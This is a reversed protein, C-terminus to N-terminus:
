KIRIKVKKTAKDFFANGNYAITVWYKKKKNLKKLKFVAKGKKNTKSVYKKNKVKLTVKMNSIPKNKNDKLNITYKKTKKKAKFAKNKAIIKVPMKKVLISQTITANNYNEDENFSVIVNYTGLHLNKTSINIEGNSDTTFSANLVGTIEINVTTNKIASNKFGKIIIKLYDNDNYIYTLKNLTIIPTTKIITCNYATGGFMVSSNEAYNGIFLTNNVISKTTNDLYYIGGGYRASNEIFVSNNVIGKSSDRYYIGGGKVASNGILTINEFINNRARSNFIAGGNNSTNNTFTSNFIKSGGWTYYISGGYKEAANNSFVSNVITTNTHDDHYIAGGREAYNDKFTSNAILMPSYDVIYIAGGIFRASNNIFSSNIIVGTCNSGSSIAGGDGYVPSITAGNSEFICNKIFMSSNYNQYIAGGNWVVHNDIFVSSDITGSTNVGFYIAGATGAMNHIFTSNIINGSSNCDFYLAGGAKLDEDGNIFKINKLTVNTAQIRFIGSKQKGNITHGQGDITLSRTINIGGATDNDQYSYDDTLIIETKSINGNIDNNLDTFSKNQNEMLVGSKEEELDETINEHASVISASLVMCAVIFLLVILKNNKFM